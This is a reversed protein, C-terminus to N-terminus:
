GRGRTVGRMSGDEEGVVGAVSVEGVSVTLVTSMVPTSRSFHLRITCYKQSGSGLFSVVGSDGMHHKPWRYVGVCGVSGRSLPIRRDKRSFSYM